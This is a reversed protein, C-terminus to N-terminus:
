EGRVSGIYVMHPLREGRLRRVIKQLIRQFGEYPSLLTPLARGQFGFKGLREVLTAPSWSRVHQWQHFVCACEPCMIKNANLNEDHPTTLVIHGGPKLLRRAERLVSDLTEDDLHEVVEILFVTDVTRNALGDTGVAAGRFHPHGSFRQNVAAVSEPSQDSGSTVTHDLLYGILDGRGCGMDLAIGIRIRRSVFDIISRGQHSSFYEQDSGKSVYFDWFRRIRDPTWVVEHPVSENRGSVPTGIEKTSL